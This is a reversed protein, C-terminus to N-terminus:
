QEQSPEPGNETQQLNFAAMPDPLPAPQKAKEEDTIRLV